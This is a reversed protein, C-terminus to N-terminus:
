PVYKIAFANAKPYELTSNQQQQMVIVSSNNAAIGNGTESRVIIADAGIAAASKQMSKLMVGDSTWAGGLASVLGIVEYKKSPKDFFVSVSDQPVPPYKNGMRVTDGWVNLASNCGTFLIVVSFLIGIRLKNM